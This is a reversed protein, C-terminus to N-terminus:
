GQELLQDVGRIALKRRVRQSLRRIQLTGGAEVRRMRQKLLLGLGTSDIFDVAALDIVLHQELAVKNLGANFDVTAAMDLQGSLTAVTVGDVDEIDIRIGEDEVV